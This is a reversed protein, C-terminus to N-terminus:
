MSFFILGLISLWIIDCVSRMIRTKKISKSILHKDPIFEKNRVNDYNEKAPRLIILSRASLHLRDTAYEVTDNIRSILDMCSEVCQRQRSSILKTCEGNIGSRRNETWVWQGIAQIIESAKNYIERVMEESFEAYFASETGYCRGVTNLLPLLIGIRKLLAHYSSYFNIKLGSEFTYIITDNFSILSEIRRFVILKCLQRIMLSPIIEPGANVFADLLVQEEGALIRCLMGALEEASLSLLGHTVAEQFDTRMGDDYFINGYHHIAKLVKGSLLADIAQNLERSWGEKGDGIWFLANELRDKPLALTHIAEEASSETRELSRLRDEIPFSFSVPRGVRLFAAIRNKHRLEESAPSGAYVGLVRYPNGNIRDLINM